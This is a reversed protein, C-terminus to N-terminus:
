SLCGGLPLILLLDVKSTKFKVVPGLVVYRPPFGDGVVAPLGIRAM